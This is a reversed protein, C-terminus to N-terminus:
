EKPKMYRRQVVGYDGKLKSIEAKAEDETEYVDPLLQGEGDQILWEDVAELGERDAQALAQDETLNKDAM